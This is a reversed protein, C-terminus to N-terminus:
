MDVKSLLTLYFTISASSPSLFTIFPIHQFVSYTKPGQDVLVDVPSQKNADLECVPGPHSHGFLQNKKQHVSNIHHGSSHLLCDPGKQCHLVLGCCDIVVEVTVVPYRGQKYRLCLLKGMQSSRVKRHRWRLKQIQQRSKRSGPPLRDTPDCASGALLRTLTLAGSHNGGDCCLCSSRIVASLTLRKLELSLQGFSNCHTCVAPLHLPSMYSLSFIFCSGKIQRNM